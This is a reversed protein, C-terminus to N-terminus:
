RGDWQNAVRRAEAQERLAQAYLERAHEARVRAAQARDGHGLREQLKAAEEHLTAARSHAALESARARAARDRVRMVRDPEDVATWGNPLPQETQPLRGSMFLAFTAQLVM